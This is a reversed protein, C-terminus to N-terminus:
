ASSSSTSRRRRRTTSSAPCWRHDAQDHGEPGRVAEAGAGQAAARQDQLRVEQRRDRARRHLEHDRPPLRGQPERPHRDEGRDVADAARGAGRRPRHLPEQGEREPHLGQRQRHLQRLAERDRGRRRHDRAPGREQRHGRVGRKVVALCSGTTSASDGRETILSHHTLGGELENMVM